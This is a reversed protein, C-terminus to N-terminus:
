ERIRIRVRNVKGEKEQAVIHQEGEWSSKKGRRMAREVMKVEEEKGGGNQRWV